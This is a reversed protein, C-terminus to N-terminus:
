GVNDYFKHLAAIQKDSLDGRQIFQLRLSRIFDNEVDRALFHAEVEALMHEILKARDSVSM